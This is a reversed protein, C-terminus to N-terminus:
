LLVVLVNSAGIVVEQREQDVVATATKRNMEMRRPVLTVALSVRAVKRDGYRVVVALLRKVM